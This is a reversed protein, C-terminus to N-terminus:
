RMDEVYHKQDPFRQAFQYGYAVEDSELEDDFDFNDVDVEFESEGDEQTSVCQIHHSTTQAGHKVKDAFTVKADLKNGHVDTTYECKPSIHGDRGCRYCTM